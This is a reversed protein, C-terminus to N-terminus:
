AADRTSARAHETVAELNWARFLTRMSVVIGRYLRASEASVVTKPSGPVLGRAELGAAVNLPFTLRDIVKGLEKMKRAADTPQGPVLGKCVRFIHVMLEPVINVLGGICGAAGLSFVEPLRTDAGSFVVFDKERGLRILQEHYPFEGGSQKIGAMPARDAFAAITELSIRNSTLEPFNYLFVPLKVAEASRLFFELMDAQSMPFFSPPMMAVAPIGLRRAYRGLEVVADPRIDSINAIISLPPALDAIATLVAKREELSFRPFEGTSGLALVGNVGHSRLFGLHAALARKMLRGRADTPIWLAAHIGERPVPSLM